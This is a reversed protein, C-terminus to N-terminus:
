ASASEGVQKKPNKKSAIAEKKLTAEIEKQKREEEAKAVAAEYVDIQKQALEPTTWMGSLHKPLKGGTTFAVKYLATNTVQYIKLEKKPTEEYEDFIDEKNEDMIQDM